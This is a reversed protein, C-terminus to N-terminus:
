NKKKEQKEYSDPVVFLRQFDIRIKLSGLLSQLFRLLTLLLRFRSIVVFNQAHRSVRVFAVDDFRVPFRRLLPMGVVKLLTVLLLARLLLEDIDCSGFLNERVVLLSRLEILALIWQIRLRTSVRLLTEIGELLEMMEVPGRELKFEVEILCAM